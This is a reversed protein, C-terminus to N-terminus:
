EPGGLGSKGARDPNDARRIQKEEVHHKITRLERSRELAAAPFPSQAIL